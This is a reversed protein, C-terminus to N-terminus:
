LKYLGHIQKYVAFVLTEGVKPLNFTTLLERIREVLVGDTTLVEGRVELIEETKLSFSASFITM